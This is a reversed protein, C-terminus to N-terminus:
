GRGASGFCGVGAKKLEEKFKGFGGLSGNIADAIKGSPAGGANPGHRGSCRIIPTVGGNNSGGHSTRPCRTSAACRDEVSAHLELHKDLAANLNTAYATISGHHIEMTMMHPPNADTLYPLATIHHM